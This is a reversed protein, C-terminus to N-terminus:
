SRYGRYIGETNETQFMQTCGIASLYAADQLVIVPHGFIQQAYAGIGKIGAIGGSLVIQTKEMKNLLTEAKQLIQWIVAYIITEPSCDEALLRVIESQAFVACVCSLTIDPRKIGTLDIEDLQMQLLHLTNELFMGCGAACKDNLYFRCLKGNQQRIVKMDQGGIDLVVCEAHMRSYVGKALAALENVNKVADVNTRGYGCSIVSIDTYQHVFERIKGTFYSKQRVPTKETFLRVTQGYSDQICYKTYTSGIDMGIQYM